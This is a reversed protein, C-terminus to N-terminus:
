LAYVPETHVSCAIMSHKVSNDKGNIGCIRQDKWLPSCIYMIVTLKRIKKKEYQLIFLILLIVVGVTTEDVEDISM